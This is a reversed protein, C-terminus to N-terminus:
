VGSIQSIQSIQNIQNIQNVQRIQNVMKALADHAISAPHLPHQNRGPTAKQGCDAAQTHGAAQRIQQGCAQYGLERALRAEMALARGMRGKIAEAADGGFIELKQEFRQRVPVYSSGYCYKDALFILERETVPQNEPLVLDRHDQVLHAMVPLHLSRLLCGAAAEHRKENKCIDHLLGGALALDPDPGSYSGFCPDFCQHPAPTICSAPDPGVCPSSVPDSYSGLYPYIASASCSAPAIGDAPGGAADAHGHQALRARQLAKALAAAVIGVALGHRLGKQPVNHLHLLEMAEQPLLADRYSALRRINEYEEPRDMDLLMLKDAVPIKRVPLGELAGRLGHGDRFQAYRLIHELHCAPLLPPHGEAGAFTPVLVHEPDAAHAQLLAQVTMPRVLPVDVPHVLVPAQPQTTKGDALAELGACVSSFMGEEPRPNRVVALGLGQAAPEVSDAHWGTVVSIHEIGVTRYLRALGELAPCQRGEEGLPLPLLAKIKGMRSAQGAALILVRPKM